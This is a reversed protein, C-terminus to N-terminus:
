PRRDESRGGQSSHEGRHREKARLEATCTNPRQGKERERKAGERRSEKNGLTQHEQHGPRLARTGERRGNEDGINKELRGRKPRSNMASSGGARWCNLRASRRQHRWRRPHGLAEGTAATCQSSPMPSAAEGQGQARKRAKRASIHQQDHRM